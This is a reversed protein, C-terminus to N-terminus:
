IYYNVVVDYLKNLHNNKENNSLTIKTWHNKIRDRVSKSDRPINVHWTRFKKQIDSLSSRKFSLSVDNTDQYENFVRITNFTKIHNITIGNDYYEGRYDITNFTKAYQFNDNDLFTIHYEKFENFFENYHGKNQHWIYGETKENKLTYLNDNINFFCCASGYDFFSVFSTSKGSFMLTDFTKNKYKLQFYVDKNTSDYYINCGEDNLEKIVSTVIGDSISKIGEANLLNISNNYKDLFYIGELTECISFKNQCGYIENLYEKGEVKGSSALEVPGGSYTSIQINENYKIKAIGKEQFCFLNNSVRNISTIQGKDGDFDLTNLLTIDTWNDHTAGLAKTKTWTIQYPFESNRLEPRIKKYIFFNNNQTYAMNIKNFDESIIDCQNNMIFQRDYRGAVNIRSEVYVSCLDIINNPDEQQSMSSYPMTKLCEWCEFYTDGITWELEIFPFDKSIKSEKGAVFWLNNINNVDGFIVNSELPRQLEGILLHGLSENQDITMNPNFNFTDAVYHSSSRFRIKSIANRKDAFVYKDGHDIDEDPKDYSFYTNDYSNYLFLGYRSNTLSLTGDFSNPKPYYPNSVSQINGDYQQENAFIAASEYKLVSSYFNNYLRGDKFVVAPNTEDVYIVEKSSINYQHDLFMLENSIRLNAFTKSKLTGIDNANSDGMIGGSTHWPYMIFNKAVANNYIYRKYKGNGSGRTNWIVLESDNYIACQGISLSSKIGSAVPSWEYVGTGKKSTADPPMNDNPSYTYLLNPSNEVDMKVNGKYENIFYKGIYKLNFVDIKTRGGDLVESVDNNINYKEPSYLGMLDWSIEYQTKNQPIDGHSELQFENVYPYIDSHNTNFFLDSHPEYKLFSLYNNYEDVSIVANAYDSTVLNIVDTFNIYQDFYNYMSTDFPINAYGCTSSSIVSGVDGYRITHDSYIFNNQQWVYCFYDELSIPTEIKEGDNQTVRVITYEDNFLLQNYFSMQIDGYSDYLIFEHDHSYIPAVLLNIYYECAKRMMADYNSPPLSQGPNQNPVPPLLHQIKRIDLIPRFYWSPCLEKNIDDYKVQISPSLIGQSISEYCSEDPLVVLPRIEIFGFDALGEIFSAPLMKTFKPVSIVNGNKSPFVSTNKRDGIFIPETWAGYKDMLQFGFRYTQNTKFTSIKSMDLDLEACCNPSFDKLNLSYTKLKWQEGGSPVNIRSVDFDFTKLNGLFLTGDKQAITEAVVRTGNKLLIESPVFSEGILGNDVFKYYYVSGTQSQRENFNNISIEQVLRGNPAGDKVSRHISYVKISDFRKKIIDKNQFSISIDFSNLVDDENPAGGCDKNSIYLIPSIAVIASEQGFKRQYSVFYQITGAKFLGSGYNKLVSINPICGDIMPTFDFSYEDYDRGDDLINIKRPQNIGDVWYVNIVSETEYLPIAEIKHNKDFNINGEYLVRRDLIGGDSSIKFLTIYDRKNFFEGNTSFVILYNNIIAHGIYLGSYNSDIIKINGQENTVSFMTDEDNKTIRINRADVYIKAADLSSPSLDKNLGTFLHSSQKFEAM